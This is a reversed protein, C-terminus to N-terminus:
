GGVPLAIREGSPGLALAFRDRLSAEDLRAAARDVGTASTGTVLWVPDQEGERTAAVLGAGAGLTRAGRGRADLLSLTGGGASFRAYVGSRAPPQELLRANAQGEIARFAGVLVRLEGRGGSGAGANTAIIAGVARLREEVIRCAAASPQACQMRVAPRRGHLGHLFPEPYSGVVAPVDQAQSWDHLDWWIRDGARLDTDAAGAPAEIGNVYYFWDIPDGAESGGSLGDISQVFGGGYRTRVRANRMLLSMVTETGALRPSSTSLVSRAGFDRTVTLRVGKPASGPGLGCGAFAMAAVCLAVASRRPCARRGRTGVGLPRIPREPAM